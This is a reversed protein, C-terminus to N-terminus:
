YFWIVKASRDRTEFVMVNQATAMDVLPEVLAAPQPAIEGPPRDTDVSRLILVGTLAAAAALPVAWRWSWRTWASQRRRARVGRLTEEVGTAPGLADLARSLEEQGALLRAAVGGCRPCDRVHTALEGDGQGALEAPDAELLRQVAARCEIAM